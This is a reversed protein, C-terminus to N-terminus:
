RKNPSLFLWEQTAGRREDMMWTITSPAIRTLMPLVDQPFDSLLRRRGRIREIKHTDKFREIITKTCGPVLNDHTEVLVDASRLAPIKDPDLVEVEGGEIDIVVAVTDTAGELERALDATGCHGRIEIQRDVANRAANAALPAHLRTDTEFAVVRALPLCRAFGIAYYGDAAGVNVVTSYRRAVMREIVNALELEHTGALFGIYGHPTNRSPTLIMGRFPGGVTRNRAAIRFAASIASRRPRALSRIPARVAPPLKRYLGYLGQLVAMDEGRSLM